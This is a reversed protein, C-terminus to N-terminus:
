FLCSCLPICARQNKVGSQVSSVGLQSTNNCQRQNQAKTTQKIHKRNTYLATIQINSTEKRRVKFLYTLNSLEM